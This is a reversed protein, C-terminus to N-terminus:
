PMRPRPMASPPTLTKIDTWLDGVGAIRLRAGRRELWIGTNNLDPLRAEALAARMILTFERNDHNGRM